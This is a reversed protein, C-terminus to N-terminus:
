PTEEGIEGDGGGGFGDFLQAPVSQAPFDLHKVFDQFRSAPHFVGLQSGGIAEVWNITTKQM